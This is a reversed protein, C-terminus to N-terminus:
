SGMGAWFRDSNACDRRGSPARASAIYRRACPANSRKGSSAIAGSRRWSAARVEASSEISEGASRTRACRSRSSSM